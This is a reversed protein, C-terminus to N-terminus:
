RQLSMVHKPPSSARPFEFKVWKDSQKQMFWFGDMAGVTGFMTSVGLTVGPHYGVRSERNNAYDIKNIAGFYLEKRDVEHTQLELDDGCIIGGDKIKPMALCIDQVVSQVSHNGDIYVIDFYDDPQGPLIDKCEGKIPVIMDNLNAASINQQFLEFIDNELCFFQQQLAASTPFKPNFWMEAWPDICIVSGGTPCYKKVSNGWTIASAGVWSGIEIINLPECLDDRCYFKVLEVMHGHRIGISQIGKIESTFKFEEMGTM